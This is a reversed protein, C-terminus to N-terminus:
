PCTTDAGCVNTGIQNMGATVQPNANGGNNDNIVNNGYGVRAASTSLIGLDKNGTITNGLITASAGTEIGAAGNGDIRNNVLTATSFVDVGNGTNDSSTNGIFAGEGFRFGLANDRAYNGSVTGSCDFGDEVNNSSVNDRVTANSAVIGRRGNATSTNEVVVCQFCSLGDMGNNSV